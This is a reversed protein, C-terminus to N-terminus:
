TKSNRLPDVIGGYHKKCYAEYFIGM